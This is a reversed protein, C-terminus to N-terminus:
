DILQTAIARVPEGAWAGRQCVGFCFRPCSSSKSQVLSLNSVVVVAIALPCARTTQDLWVWLQAEINAPQRALQYCGRPVSYPEKTNTAVVLSLCRLFANQIAGSMRAAELWLEIDNPHSFKRSRSTKSSGLGRRSVGIKLLFNSIGGDQCNSDALTEGFVFVIVLLCSM